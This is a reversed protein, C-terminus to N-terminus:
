IIFSSFFTKPIKAITKPLMARTPEQTGIKFLPENKIATTASIKPTIANITLRFFLFTRAITPVQRDIAEIMM